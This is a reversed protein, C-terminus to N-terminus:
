TKPRFLAGALWGIALAIIIAALGYLAPSQTAFSYVWRELGIKDVFLASSQAGILDGDRFLYIEARYNGIPVNSPIQFAARFLSTGIFTVQNPATPYLGAREKLRILAQRFDDAQEAPLTDAGRPTLRLRTAGIQHRGLASDAGLVALPRTTAVAFFAPVDDFSETVGNMWIGAFREKRHLRVAQDPGRLVVVVDRKGPGDPVVAGFVLISTGTFSSTIAIIRNSIDSMLSDARAGPALALLVVLAAALRRM